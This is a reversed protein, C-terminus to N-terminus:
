LEIPADIGLDALLSRMVKQVIWVLGLRTQALPLDTRGEGWIRCAAHFSQFDQSLAQALKRDRQKLLSLQDLTNVLQSILQQEAPHQCRLQSSEPNLWPFILSETADARDLCIIGTQNALRRLSCCRAHTHLLSFISTSNRINPVSNLVAQKSPDLSLPTSSSLNTSDSLLIQSGILSQLWIAVGRDSLQLYIWGPEATQVTFNQWIQRCIPDPAESNEWVQAAGILHDLQEAVTRAIESAANGSKLPQALRFAIASVYQIPAAMKLRNLPIETPEITLTQPPLLDFDPSDASLAAKSAPLYISAAQLAAQM